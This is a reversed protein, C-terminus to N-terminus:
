SSTLEPACACADVIASGGAGEGGAVRSAGAGASGGFRAALVCAAASSGSSEGGAFARVFAAARPSFVAVSRVVLLARGGAFVLALGGAALWLGGTALAFGGRISMSPTGITSHAGHDTDQDRERDRDREGREATRGARLRAVGIASLRVCQDVRTH